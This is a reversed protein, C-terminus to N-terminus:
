GTLTVFAKRRFCYFRTGTDISHLGGGTWPSASTWGVSVGTASMFFLASRAILSLSNPPSPQAWIADLGFLLKGSTTFSNRRSCNRLPSTDAESFTLNWWVKLIARTAWSIWKGLELNSRQFTLRKETSVERLLVTPQFFGLFRIWHRM